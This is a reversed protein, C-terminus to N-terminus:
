PNAAQLAVNGRKSVFLLQVFEPDNLLVIVEAGPQQGRLKADRWEDGGQEDCATVVRWFSCVLKEIGAVIVEVLRVQQLSHALRDRSNELRQIRSFLDQDPAIIIDVASRARHKEPLSQLDEATLSREMNGVAKRFSVPDVDRREFLCFGVATRDHDTDVATDSAELRDSPCLLVPEVEDDGIMVDRIRRTTIRICEGDYIRILRFAGIGVLMEGADADCEFKRVRQQALLLLFM